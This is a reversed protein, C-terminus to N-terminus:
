EVRCNSFILGQEIGYIVTAIANTNNDTSIVDAADLVAPIANAVAVGVGANQVMTLDNENDGIGITFAADIGLLRALELLAAGKSAGKPLLEYYRPDSQVFDYSRTFASTLLGNKVLPLEEPKQIFLAKKWPEAIDHYDVVLEPLREVRRHAAVLENERCFYVHEATCVEIGSFPYNQEVFEIVRVANKDLSREWLMKKDFLDYIGCGNFCIVPANPEVMALPLGLGLVTRGTAFTFLGGEEKFYAIAKKNEESITKETTLLTDDLDSCLLIGDFKGM